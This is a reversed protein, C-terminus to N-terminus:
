VDGGALWEQYRTIERYGMRQYIPLGMESAQLYSTRCGERRSDVAAQWTLAAGYGRGRYESNTSVFFVGGVGSSSVCLSTSVPVKGVFGVYGKAGIAPTYPLFRDPDDPTAGTFTALGVRLMTRWLTADVVRRIRLGAPRAPARAPIPDLVMGPMERGPRLGAAVASARVVSILPPAAVLRWSSVGLGGMFSKSDEVMKAPDEIPGTVFVPNFEPGPLRSAVRVVGPEELIRGNPRSRAVRRFAEAFNDHCRSILASSVHESEDDPSTAL